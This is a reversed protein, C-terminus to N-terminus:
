VIRRLLEYDVNLTEGDAFLVRANRARCSRVTGRFYAPRPADFRVAVASGPTVDSREYTPGPTVLLSPDLQPTSPRQPTSPAAGFDPLRLGALPPAAPQPAATPPAAALAVQREAHAAREDDTPTADDAPDDPFQTRQLAAVEADNDCTPLNKTLVSTIDVDLARSRAAIYEDPERHAYIAISAPDRWRVFAQIDPDDFGLAKLASALFVRGSYLSLTRAVAPELALATLAGFADDAQAHTLPALSEDSVFLPVLSRRAGSVPAM